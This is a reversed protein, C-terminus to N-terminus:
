PVIETQMAHAGDRLSKLRVGATLPTASPTRSASCLAASGFATSDLMWRFIDLINQTTTAHQNFTFENAILTCETLAAELSRLAHTVTTDLALLGSAVIGIAANTRNPFRRHVREARPARHTEGLPQRRQAARHTRKAGMPDGTHTASLRARAHFRLDAVSPRITSRLCDRACITAAAACNSFSTIFVKTARVRFIIISYNRQPCRRSRTRDPAAACERAAYGPM